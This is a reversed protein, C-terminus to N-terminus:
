KTQEGSTRSRELREKKRTETAYVFVGTLGALPTLLAVLGTVSQGVALLFIGGGIVLASLCSGAILGRQSQKVDSDVIRTELNQRHLEQNEVMTLIRDAGNPVIENYKILIEPPPLPGSFQYHQLIHKQNRVAVGRPTETKPSTAARAPQLAM